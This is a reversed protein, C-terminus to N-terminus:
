RRRRGIPWRSVRDGLELLEHRIRIAQRAMRTELLFTVLGAVLLGMAMVFCFVVAFRYPLGVIQTVFLLAVLFCVLIASATCLAISANAYAMRRDLIRLEWVVREHAAGTSTQHQVELARARDVVRALRSAVVNLIAGVGALLFVPAIALQITAALSSIAPLEIPDM